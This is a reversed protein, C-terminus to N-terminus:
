KLVLVSYSAVAVTAAVVVLLLLLDVMVAAVVDVSIAWRILRVVGKDGLDGLVGLECPDGLVGPPGTKPVGVPVPAVPRMKNDGFAAFILVCICRDTLM